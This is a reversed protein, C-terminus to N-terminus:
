QEERQRKEEMEKVYKKGGIFFLIGSPIYGACIFAILIKGFYAPNAKANLAAAIFSFIAPSITQCLNTYLQWASVMKGTEESSVTNEIMTVATAHYGGSVLIYAAISSISIWFSGHGMCCAIIFPISLLTSLSTIWGKAMPYKKEFKDGILGAALNSTFGFVTLILANLVSYQSRFAPYSRLFFIPLFSAIAADSFHRFM